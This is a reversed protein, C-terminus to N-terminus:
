ILLFILSVALFQSESSGVTAAAAAAALCNFSTLWENPQYMSGGNTCLMDM